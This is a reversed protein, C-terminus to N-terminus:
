EGIVTHLQRWTALLGPEGGSWVGASYAVVMRSLGDANRAGSSCAGPKRRQQQQLLDIAFQLKQCQLLLQQPQEQRWLFQGAVLPLPLLLGVPCALPLTTM